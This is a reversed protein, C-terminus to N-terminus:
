AQLRFDKSSKDFSGHGAYYVILRTGGPEDDNEAVFDALGRNLQVQPNKKPQLRLHNVVFHYKSRFVTALEQV